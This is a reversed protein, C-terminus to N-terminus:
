GIHDDCQRIYPIFCAFFGQFKQSFIPLIAPKSFSMKKSTAMKSFIKLNKKESKKAEAGHFLKKTLMTPDFNQHNGQNIAWFLVQTFMHLM